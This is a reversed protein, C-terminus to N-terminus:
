LKGQYIMNPLASCNTSISKVHVLTKCVEETAAVLKEPNSFLRAQVDLDLILLDSLAAEFEAPTIGERAAMIGYAEAKHNKAFNLAKHWAKHLKPVIDPYQEVVETSLSVTDIIEEPIDASSFVVHRNPDKLINLSVPPYSVFADIKNEAMAQSGVAQEVNVVNVDSLSLGSKSLARQLFYIGLSSVECGVTKGKLSAVNPLDKSTIIVDGGNSYDPVMVIQLPKGGLPEAQVAEIITSALGDVRGNIYARQGDALSSLQVLKINAGIEDFYGKKEALYLFEYGPWPNIAITVVRDPAKSCAGIFAAILVLTLVLRM